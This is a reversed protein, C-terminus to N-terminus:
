SVFKAVPRLRPITYCAWKLSCVVLSMHCTYFLHVDRVEMLKTLAFIKAPMVKNIFDDAREGFGDVWTKFKKQNEKLKERKARRSMKKALAQALIVLESPAFSSVPALCVTKRAEAAAATRPSSM